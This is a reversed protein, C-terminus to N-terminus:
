DKILIKKCSRISSSKLDRWKGLAPYHNIIRIALFQKAASPLLTLRLIQLLQPKLM